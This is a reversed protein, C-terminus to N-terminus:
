SSDGSKHGVVDECFRLLDREPFSNKACQAMYSVFHVNGKIYGQSSDIRDLSARDPTLPLQDRHNTSPLNKLSWGTYPCRGQQQEWQEKLDQLTLNCERRRKANRLHWRFASWEDCKRPTVNEPHSRKDAPINRFVGKGCCKASCYVNQLGREQCRKVESPKRNFERGCVSCTLKM